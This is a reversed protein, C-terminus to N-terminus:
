ASSPMRSACYHSSNLRTSKRDVQQLPTKGPAYSFATAAAQIAGIKLSDLVEKAPSVSEGYHLKITFNGNTKEAVTKAIYEMGASYARPPCYIALDWTVEDAAQAGPVVAAFGSAIAISSITM